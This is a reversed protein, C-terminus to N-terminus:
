VDARDPVVTPDDADPRLRHTGVVVSAFLPHADLHVLYFGPRDARGVVGSAEGAPLGVRVSDGPRYTM